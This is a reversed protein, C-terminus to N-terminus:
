QRSRFRCCVERCDLSTNRSCSLDTDHPCGQDTDHPCGQGTDRFCCLSASGEEGPSPVMSHNVEFISSHRVESLSLSPLSYRRGSLFSDNLRSTPSTVQFGEHRLMKIYLGNTAISALINARSSCSDDRSSISLDSTFSRSRLLLNKYEFESRDLMGDMELPGALAGCDEIDAEVADRETPDQSHSYEVIHDSVLYM